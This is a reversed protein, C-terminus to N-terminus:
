IFLSSFGLLPSAPLNTHLLSPSSFPAPKNRYNLSPSSPLTTHGASNTTPASMQGQSRSTGFNMERKEMKVGVALGEGCRSSVIMGETCGSHGPNWSLKGATSRQSFILREDVAEMLSRSLDKSPGILFNRGYSKIERDIFQQGAPGFFRSTISTM